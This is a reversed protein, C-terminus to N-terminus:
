YLRDTRCATPNPRRSAHAKRASHGAGAGAQVDLGGSCCDGRTSRTSTEDIMDGRALNILFATPKMISLRAGDILHRNEAGGPCHLSVFDSEALVAEISPLQRASM